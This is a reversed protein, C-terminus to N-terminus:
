RLFYRLFERVPNRVAVGGEMVTLCYCDEGPHVQPQHEVHSDAVTIDGATYSGTEDDYGGRLILTTERGHHGHLLMKRGAGFRILKVTETPSSVAELRHEAMGPMVTRWSAAELSQGLLRELPGFRAAAVFGADELSATRPDAEEDAAPGDLASLTRTLADAALPVGPEQELLAAGAREWDAVRARADGLMSLQTATLLALGDSLAGAAYDFHLEDRM